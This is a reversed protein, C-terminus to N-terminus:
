GAPQRGPGRGRGTAPEQHHGQHPHRWVLSLQDQGKIVVRRALLKLLTPDGGHPRGLGLKVFSGDALSQQLRATFKQIDTLAASAPLPM